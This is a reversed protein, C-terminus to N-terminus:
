LPSLFPARVKSCNRCRSSTTRINQWHPAYYDHQYRSSRSDSINFPSAGSGFSRQEIVESLLVSAAQVLVTSGKRQNTVHFVSVKTKAERGKGERLGGTPQHM